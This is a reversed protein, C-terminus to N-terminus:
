RGIKRMLFYILVGAGLIAIGTIGLINYLLCIFAAAVFLILMYFMVIAAM